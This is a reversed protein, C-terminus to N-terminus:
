SLPFCDWSLLKRLFFGLELVALREKEKKKKGGIHLTICVWLRTHCLSCRWVTSPEDLPSDNRPDTVLTLIDSCNGLLNWHIFYIISHFLYYSSRELHLFGEKPWGVKKEVKEGGGLCVSLTRSLIDCGWVFTRPKLFLKKRQRRYNFSWVSSKLFWNSLLPFVWEKRPIKPLEPRSFFNHSIGTKMCVFYGDIRGRHECGKCDVTCGFAGFGFSCVGFGLM